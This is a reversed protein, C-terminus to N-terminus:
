RHKAERDERQRAEMHDLVQDPAIDRALEDLEPNHAADVGMRQAIATVLQVLWTVEHESLLSVQLDLEAREEARAAMRN